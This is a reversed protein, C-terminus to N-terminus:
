GLVGQLFAAATEAAERHCIPGPHLRSGMTEERVGPLPLYWVRRDGTERRFDEVAGELQPRLDESIMGYAWILAAKPNRRRLLGLFDRAASRILEKESREQHFTEGSPGRWPPQDMAGADNSGLNVLIADPVWKGFDWPEQSGLARDEPRLAPGCVPEYIGPLVHRPDNDWGSRLGWGSQSLVHAEGGLLDATLQPWGGCASLLAPIWDTEERAGPVGEGSTLSDGLFELRCAPEPLPLFTGGEWRLGRIWLRHGPETPQTEKLLRVRKPTGKTMGRLLCVESTGRPVAMRLLPVGNLEGSIWPEPGRGYGAELVAYLSSGTFLAELGSGTWFLPLVGARRAAEEAYRGLPRLHPIEWISAEM